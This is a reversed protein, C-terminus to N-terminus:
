VLVEQSAADMLRQYTLRNEIRHRDKYAFDKLDGFFIKIFRVLRYLSELARFFDVARQALEKYAKLFSLECSQQWRLPFCFYLLMAVCTLKAYIECLIRNIKKGSVKAIGAGSKCLKFFLEIQWRLTYVLHIHKTPIKDKPVNTIYISWRILKLAGKTLQKGHRQAARKAKRVCQEVQEDSLCYAVLRVMLREKKQGVYVQKEFLGRSKRLENILDIPEGQESFLNTTTLYRSIFYAGHKHIAIFSKLNFYGLDQLHLAGKEIENLHERYGQDSRCGETIVLQKLQGRIYDFLVQIKLGAESAAGGSGKYIDKLNTPLSIGSSDIIHVTSFPKLLAFVNSNEVRFLETAKLFFKQMLMKAEASNFRQQLGQKSIRIGRQKMLKCLRELSIMPDLLCGSVLAEVFLRAGLKSQRKVFKTTKDLDVVTKTFLYIVKKSINSVTDGHM